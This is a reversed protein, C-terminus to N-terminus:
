APTARRGSTSAACRARRCRAGARGAGDRDAPRRAARRALHAGLILDVDGGLERALVRDNEPVVPDLGMHSLLVVLEAGAARLARAHARVVEVVPLADLGFDPDSVGVFGVRDLLAPDRV